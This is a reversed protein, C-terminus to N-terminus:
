RKIMDKVLVSIIDLQKDDLEKLDNIINDIKSPNQLKEDFFENVSIGLYECIYFIGTLSPLMKGNEINNIYGPNQGISLSMERASVGKKARLKSIRLAVDKETM